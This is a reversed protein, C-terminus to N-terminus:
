ERGVIGDAFGLEVARGASLWTDTSTMEYVEELTLGAKEALIQCLIERSEMLSRSQEQLQLATAGPNAGILPDHILLKSHPYMESRSASCFVIAGMSAATDMCVARVPCAIDRMVDCIALGASVSGGPSDVFVTVEGSPDARELHRLQQCVAYASRANVEGLVAVERNALMEDAVTILAYGNSTERIIDPIQEYETKTMATELRPQELPEERRTPWLIAETPIYKLYHKGYM